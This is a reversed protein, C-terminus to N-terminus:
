VHNRMSIEEVAKTKCALFWRYLSIIKLIKKEYENRRLIQWFEMFIIIRTKIKSDLAAYILSKNNKVFSLHSCSHIQLIPSKKHIIIM